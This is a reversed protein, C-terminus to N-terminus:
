DNKIQILEAIRQTAGRHAAAFAIGAAGMGQRRGEDDGLQMALKVAQKMDQSQLVAGAAIAAAAADAFNYTSPGIIVPKGVACPEILNHAGFDLFSGGMLVVDSLAYYAPMEGLSDGLLVRTSPAVPRGESRRQCSLGEADIMAAVADFRQPHRPVIVWLANGAPVHRIVDLLLAEEGERTSAALIVPRANIEARWQQGASVQTDSIEQDFKLNGAVVTAPAGLERLRQADAATQAAVVTLRQVADRALRGTRRYGALSRASLRANVLYLPVDHDAAAHVLNPWIETEILVGAVPRFHSFFRAVAGPLDYPLYVRRVEDGFLVAGTERGTPTMHTLLITHQPHRVRLTRILPEAARTEGVSVAHVWILPQMSQRAGYFGFRESVHQLYGPQRRARWVLRLLVLPMGLYLLLTYLLRPM